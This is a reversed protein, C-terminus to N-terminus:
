VFEGRVILCQGVEPDVTCTLVSDLGLSWLSMLGNLGSVIMQAAFAPSLGPHLQGLRRRPLASEFWSTSCMAFPVGNSM